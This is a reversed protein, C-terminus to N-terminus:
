YSLQMSRFTVKEGSSPHVFSIELAHLCLREASIGGYLMDGTIPRSLGLTHASHVRLQHTRGTVPHFLVETCGDECVGTVEYDTLAEKGHAPDVKQRPREDYDPGLPLSIKGSVGEALSVAPGAAFSSDIDAPSLRAMYTKRVSHDEFQRRLNVASTMNCAYIMIGSTDMDLRHVSQIWNGHSEQLQELLSRKGDLGPVSPMGSPKEVVIIDNDEYIIVPKGFTEIPNDTALGELMFRLLPGCKSTCSPYFHRHTRVPGYPSKGYWFEGMALPILGKRYAYHLLKPAACEGTGGPPIMGQRHFIESISAKEGLANLVIFQDFIWKQLEESKGARLNKLKDIEQRITDIRLRIAETKQNWAAKLRRFEAKEYQSERILDDLIASDCCGLRRSERVKKAEAMRSRADAIEKAEQETALALDKQLELMEPSNELDRIRSSIGNLEAEGKKFGGEPDLLDYIPPVFGEIESKGNVSGSFAALYGISEKDPVKVILVGLMKGQGFENEPLTKIIDEAAFTVAPHPRYRFPDTFLTVSDFEFGYPFIHIRNM